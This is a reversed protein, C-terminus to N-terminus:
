VSLTATGDPIPLTDLLEDEGILALTVAVRSPPM